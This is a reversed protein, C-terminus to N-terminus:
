LQWRGDDSLYADGALCGPQGCGAGGTVEAGCACTPGGAPGPSTRQKITWGTPSSIRTQEGQALSAECPAFLPDPMPVEMVQCERDALDRFLYYLLDSWKSYHSAAM